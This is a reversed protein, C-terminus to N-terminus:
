PMDKVSKKVVAREMTKVADKKEPRDQNYIDFAIGIESACKKLCDSAAAKFANGLNSPAASTRQAKKSYEVTAKGFQERVIDGGKTHLILKGHVVVEGANAYYESRLVKLRWNFGFILNLRKKIYYSKVSKYTNGDEDKKIEIETDPTPENILLVQQDTLPTEGVNKLEAISFYDKM